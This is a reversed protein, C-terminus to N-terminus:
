LRCDSDPGRIGQVGQSERLLGTECLSGLEGESQRSSVLRFLHRVQESSHGPRKIPEFIIGGMGAVASLLGVDEVELGFLLIPKDLTRPCKRNM